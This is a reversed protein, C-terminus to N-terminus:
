KEKKGDKSKAFRCIITCLNPNINQKKFVKQM